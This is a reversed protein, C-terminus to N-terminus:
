SQQKVSKQKIVESRKLYVLQCSRHRRKQPQGELFGLLFFVWPSCSSLGTDIGQIM